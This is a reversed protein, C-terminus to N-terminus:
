QIPPYFSKTYRHLEAVRLNRKKIENDFVSTDKEVESYQKIATELDEIEENAQYIIDSIKNSIQVKEEERKGKIQVSVLFKNSMKRNQPSNETKMLTSKFMTIPKKRGLIPSNAHLSKSNETLNLRRKKSIGPLNRFGPSNPEEKELKYNEASDIMQSNQMQSRLKSSETPKNFGARRFM